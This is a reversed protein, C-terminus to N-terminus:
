IEIVVISADDNFKHEYSYSLVDQMIGHISQKLSLKSTKAIFKALNKEGLQEGLSNKAETLGDTYLYFRMGKKIDASRSNFQYYQSAGVIQSDPSMTFIKNADTLVLASPHGCNCVDVKMAETDFLCLIMTFYFGTESLLKYLDQNIQNTAKSVSKFRRIEEDIKAGIISSLLAAPVGHGSVDAMAIAFRKEDLEIVRIFDGGVEMLPVLKSEIKEIRDMSFESNSITDQVTKALKLEFLMQENKVTLEKTRERVTNELGETLDKLDKLMFSNAFAMSASTKINRIYSIESMNLPKLNKKDGMLVFGLLLGERSFPIAYRTYKNARLKKLEERHIAWEPDAEAADLDLIGVINKLKDILTKELTLDTFLNSIYETENKTKFFVESFNPNFSTHMTNEVEEALDKLSRMIGISNIFRDQEIVLNAKKKNFAKNINPQIVLFYLLDISFWAALILFAVENPSSVLIPKVFIFILINPILVLSSLIIWVITIHAISKIDLLRYKLMAIGMVIVPIFIFNGLPYIDIGNIAPINTCTLIAIANLSFLIYRIKSKIVANKEVKLHKACLIVGYFVTIISMLGFISFAIGGKAIHGWSYTLTSEIYYPTFVFIAMISSFIYTFIELKRRKVNMVSHYFQITIPIVFVYLFHTCQEILILTQENSIFFYSLLPIPLLSTMWICTLAFLFNDSKKRSKVISILAIGLGSLLSLISPVMFFSFKM